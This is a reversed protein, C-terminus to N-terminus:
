GQLHENSAATRQVQQQNLPQIRQISVQINVAVARKEIVTLIPESDTEQYRSNLWRM